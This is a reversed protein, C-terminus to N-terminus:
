IVFVGASACSGSMLCVRGRTLPPAGCYCSRSQWVTILIQDHAGPQARCWSQNISQSVSRGVLLQLTVKVKCSERSCCVRGRMLSPAGRSCVQLQRSLLLFRTKPGLHLKVGSLSALQSATMVYSGPVWTSTPEFEEVVCTTHPSKFPVRHRLHLWAVRNRPSTFVPVQGELNPSDRIQSPSIHDHTRRSESGLMVASPLALLLQLHCVWGRMLSPAGCRCVWLQRITVFIQGHTGSPAQSVTLQLM